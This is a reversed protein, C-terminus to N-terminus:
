QLDQVSPGESGAAGALEQINKVAVTANDRLLNVVVRVSADVTPVEDILSKLDGDLFNTRFASHYIDSLLLRYRFVSGRKSCTIWDTHTSAKEPVLYRFVAFLLILSTLRQQGDVVDLIFQSGEQPALVISGLPYCDQIQEAFCTNAVDGIMRESMPPTWCYRRQYDPVQLIVDEHTVPNPSNPVTVIKRLRENSLCRQREWLATCSFLQAFKQDIHYAFM